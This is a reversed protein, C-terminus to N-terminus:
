ILEDLEACAAPHLHATIIPTQVPLIVGHGSPLLERCTVEGPVSSPCLGASKPPSLFAQPKPASTLPTHPFSPEVRGMSQKSLNGPEKHLGSAM